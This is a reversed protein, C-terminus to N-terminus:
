IRLLRRVFGAKKRPTAVPEPVTVPADVQLAAATAEVAPIADFAADVVRSLETRLRIVATGLAALDDVRVQGTAAAAGAHAIAEATASSEAALERAKRVEHQAENLQMSALRASGALLSRSESEAKEILTTARAEAAEVVHAAERHGDAVLGAAEARAAAVIALAEIRADALIRTWTADLECLWAEIQEEVEALTRQADDDV